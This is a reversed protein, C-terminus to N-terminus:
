EFLKFAHMQKLFYAVPSILTVIWKQNGYHSMHSKLKNVKMKEGHLSHQKTLSKFFFGRKYSFVWELMKAKIPCLSALRNMVNRNLM